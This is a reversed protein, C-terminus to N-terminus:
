AAGQADPTNAEGEGGLLEIAKQLQADQDHPLNNIGYRTVVGEDLEVEIDPAIGVDHICEGSPTFYRASTIKVGSGDPLEFLDQVVGKGFTTTGVITGADYDRIAGALIESASASYGNVLVVMPVDYYVDDLWFENVNEYKDRVSVAIGEPLILDAMDVAADLLGGGNNRLDIIMGAVDAERFADIAQAFGEYADGLFDYVMVYGINGHLIQYEVYNINVNERVVDFDMTELDRMVTVKVSEGPTGRIADVAEEMEYASYYVDNVYVIKDGAQMGAKEAPSGKFVRTVTILKDEPDALLQCGIGQYEGETEENFDAMQEQTYYMSYVDGLGAMLGVAANELMEEEDIDEYYYEESMMMLLDLKQFRLLSDYEERSITVTESEDQKFMPLNVARAPAAGLALVAALVFIVYKRKLGNVNGKWRLLAPGDLGAPTM